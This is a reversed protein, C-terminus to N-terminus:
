PNYLQGVVEIQGDGDSDYGINVIEDRIKGAPVWKAHGGKKLVNVGEHTHNVGKFTGTNVYAQGLWTWASNTTLATSEWSRDALLVTEDDTQEYCGFAYAYSCRDDLQDYPSGLVNAATSGSKEYNLDSPCKFARFDEAYHPILCSLMQVTRRDAVTATDVPYKEEFDNAYMHLATGIQKLNSICVGRRGAERARALVPLLMAALIAIIAIVVLLEILTFGKRKM